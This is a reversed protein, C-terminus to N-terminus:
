IPNNQMRKDIEDNKEMGHFCLSIFQPGSPMFQSNFFPLSKRGKNFLDMNLIGQSNIINTQIFADSWTDLLLYWGETEQITSYASPFLGAINKLLNLIENRTEDPLDNFM